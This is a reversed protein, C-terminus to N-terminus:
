EKSGNVEYNIGGGLGGLGSISFDISYHDTFKGEHHYHAGYRNELDGNEELVSTIKKNHLFEITIKENPNEDSDDYVYLDDESDSSIFKRIKGHYIATDYINPQGMTWQESIVIFRYDGMYKNRYDAPDDNVCGILIYTSLLLLLIRKTYLKM